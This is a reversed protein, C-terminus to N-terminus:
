AAAERLQRIREVVKPAWTQLSFEEAARRHSSASMHEWLQDDELLRTVAERWEQPTSAHLGDVDHRVIAATTATPTVVCPLGHAMYLIAKLGAKGAALPHDRSLPYLGVRVGSLVDDEAGPTWPESVVRVKGAGAVDAGVCRVETPTDLLALSHVAEALFPATSASGVWGLSRSRDARGPVRAPVDVVTPITVVHDAHKACWAALLDSGAWVEDALGAVVEYKHATRRLRRPLWTAFLRPYDTWIADDVDWILVARRAALREVATTALPVAERLVLVVDARHLLRPLLLLRLVSRVLMLGRLLRSCDGFWRRSDGASLFTWYTVDVGAARLAPEYQCARLRTGAQDEGYVSLVLLNRDM